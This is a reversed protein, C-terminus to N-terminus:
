SAWPVDITNVIFILVMRENFNPLENVDDFNLFNSFDFINLPKFLETLYQFWRPESIIHLHVSQYFGIHGILVTSAVLSVFGLRLSTETLLSSFEKVM